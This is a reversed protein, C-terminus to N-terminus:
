RTCANGSVPGITGDDNMAHLQECHEGAACNKDDSCEKLCAGEHMMHGSPCTKTEAPNPTAPKAPGGCSTVIVVLSVLIRM